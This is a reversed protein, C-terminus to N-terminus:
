TTRTTLYSSVVLLSRSSAESHLHPILDRGLDERLQLVKDCEYPEVRDHVRRLYIDFNQLSAEFSLHQVVNTRMDVKEQLRPFVVQEQIDHHGRIMAVCALGYGTFSGVDEPPVLPANLWISNLARIIVNHTLALETSFWQALNDYDDFKHDSSTIPILPFPGEPSFSLSMTFSAPINSMNKDQRLYCLVYRGTAGIYPGKTLAGWVAREYKIKRCFTNGIAGGDLKRERRPVQFMYLM